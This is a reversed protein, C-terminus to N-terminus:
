RRGSLYNYWEKKVRDVMAKEKPTLNAAGKVGDNENHLYGHHVHPKMEKHYHDLNISKTRKNENDMYTIGIIDNGGVFAYVRGKTMTEM